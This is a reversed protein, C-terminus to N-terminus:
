FFRYRVDPPLSPSFLKLAESLRVGENPNVAYFSVTDNGCIYNDTIIWEGAKVWSEPFHPFWTDYVVAIKVGYSEAIEEITKVNYKRGMRLKATEMTTLGWLDVCRIDAFYNVAGIDNLAVAQRNYFQKIFRAMQYQQDYINNSVKPLKTISYVSHKDFPIVVALIIFLIRAMDSTNPKSGTFRDDKYPLLLIGAVFVAFGALYAEYRFFSEVFLLHLITTFCFVVALVVQIIWFKRDRIIFFVALIAASAMTRVMFPSMVAKDIAQSLFNMVATFSFGAPQTGKLMVSNPLFFWGKSVSIWGSIIIPLLASVGTLLAQVIRKRILYLCCVAFVPFLGEFRSLVLLPALVLLRIRTGRPSGGSCSLDSSAFYAFMVTIMLHLTHEMGMFILGPLSTLLTVAVLLVATMWQKQAIKKSLGYVWLLFVTAVLINLILPTFDNVGFILYCLAILATWILSSSSSTFCHSTIGWVGHRAINKAMAMHIYPDDLTYVFHGNNLHVLKLLCWLVLGYLVALGALVPWHNKFFLKANDM